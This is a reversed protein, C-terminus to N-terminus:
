RPTPQRSPDRTQVAQWPPERGLPASRHFDSAAAMKPDEAPRDGNRLFRQRERAAILSVVFGCSDVSIRIFQHENTDMLPQSETCLSDKPRQLWISDGSGENGETFFDLKGRLRAGSKPCYVQSCACGLCFCGYSGAVSSLWSGLVSSCPGRGRSLAACLRWPHRFRLGSLLLDWVPILHVFTIGPARLTYSSPSQRSFACPEDPCDTTGCIKFIEFKHTVERRIESLVNAFLCLWFAFSIEASAPYLILFKRPITRQDQERRVIGGRVKIKSVAIRGVKRLERVSTDLQCHQKVIRRVRLSM